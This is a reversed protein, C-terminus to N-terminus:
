VVRVHEGDEQHLARKHSCQKSQLKQVTEFFSIITFCCRGAKSATQGAYYFDFPKNYTAKDELQKLNYGGCDKNAIPGDSKTKIRAMGAWDRPKIMQIINRSGKYSKKNSNNNSNLLVSRNKTIRRHNKALIVQSVQLISVIIQQSKM